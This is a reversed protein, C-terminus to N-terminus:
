SGGQGETLLKSRPPKTMAELEHFKHVRNRVLVPDQSTQFAFTASPSGLDKQQMLSDIQAVLDAKAKHMKIPKFIHSDVIDKSQGLLTSMLSYLDGACVSFSLFSPFSDDPDSPILM